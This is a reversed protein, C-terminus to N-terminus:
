GLNETTADQWPPSQGERHAELREGRVGLGWLVERLLDEVDAVKNGLHNLKRSVGQIELEARRNVEYDLEGRLRDKTDQRNQSMMIVPAQLAALMSLLLNLFIYPYPDVATDKSLLLTNIACWVVLFGLQWNGRRWATVSYRWPKM